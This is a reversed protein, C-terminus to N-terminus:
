QKRKLIRYPGFEGVVFYTAAIFDDLTTVGSSLVSENPEHINDWETDLIIYRVANKRLEAIMKNQIPWSTQLSPNFQYLKTAPPRDAIFYFAINNVFIKDHRGAGVFIPEGSDTNEHIFHLTQVMQPPLIFCRARELYIQPRCSGSTSVEENAVRSLLRGQVLAVVNSSAHYAIHAAAVLSPIGAALVAVGVAMMAIPRRSEFMREAAAGLAIIAPIISLSMHLPSVRVIGKLYFFASLVTILALEWSSAELQARTGNTPASRGSTFIAAIAAIITLPPLYVIFDSFEELPLLRPFPLSRTRAYYKSAQDIVQVFDPIIGAVAYVIMLPIFIVAIGLWFPFLLSVIRRIRSYGDVRAIFGFSFLVVSEAACAFFGIDYRFLTIAGVSLGAALISSTSHRGDFIALLFRVSLLGLFLAPWLAYGSFGCFTLWLVCAATTAIAFTWAMMRLAITSALWAIAAKIVLDWIREVLLSPGFIKFALALLYFQGPGYNTYFDRHPVAGAAVRSAGTVILGEDYVIVSRNMGLTLTVLAGFVVLVGFIFHGPVAGRDYSKPSYHGQSQKSFDMKTSDMYFHRFIHPMPHVLPSMQRAFSSQAFATPPQTHIIRRLLGNQPTELRCDVGTAM